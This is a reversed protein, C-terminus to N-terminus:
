EDGTALWIGREKPGWDVNDEKDEQFNITADDRRWKSVSLLCRYSDASRAPRLAV